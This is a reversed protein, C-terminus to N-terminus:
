SDLLDAFALLPRGLQHNFWCCINRLTVTGALRARFGAQTYPREHALRFTHLLRDHVSEVVEFL